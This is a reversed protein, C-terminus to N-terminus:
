IHVHLSYSPFCRTRLQELLRTAAEQGQPTLPGVGESKGWLILLHQDKNIDLFAGGFCRALHRSLDRHRGSNNGLLVVAGDSDQGVCILLCNARTSEPVDPSDAPSLKEQVVQETLEAFVPRMEEESYRADCSDDTIELYIRRIM